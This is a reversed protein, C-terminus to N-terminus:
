RLLTQIIAALCVPVTMFEALRLTRRNPHRASTVMLASMAVAAPAVAFPKQLFILAVSSVALILTVVAVLLPTRSRRATDDHTTLDHRPM